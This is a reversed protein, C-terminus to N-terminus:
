AAEFVLKFIGDELAAETMSIVHDLQRHQALPSFITVDGCRCDGGEGAQPPPGPHPHGVRIGIHISAGVRRARGLAM